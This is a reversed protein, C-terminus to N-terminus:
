GKKDLIEWIDTFVKGARERIIVKAKHDLPTPMLNIVALNKVRGPLYAVPYVQLSSGAVILFDCNDLAEVAAYFARPMPDHFLVVEPRLVGGKCSRCLPPNIGKQVSNVLFDFTDEAGCKLCYCTRLHGHVEFVNKSGAKVHLGDINQTIIGRLFGKAELKALIWHAPNPEAQLIQVFRPLGVEYFRAPNSELADRSLERVPDIREWLGTGPSRFDPIGSETSIGAGTLAMPYRASLLLSLLQRIKDAYSGEM